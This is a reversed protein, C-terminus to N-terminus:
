KKVLLEVAHYPIVVFVRENDGDEKKAWVEVELPENEYDLTVDSIVRDGLLSEGITYSTESLTRVSKYFSHM